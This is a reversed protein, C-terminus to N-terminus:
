HHIEETETVSDSIDSELESYSMVRSATDVYSHDELQRIANLLKTGYFISSIQTDFAIRSRDTRTDHTSRRTMHNYLSYLDMPYLEQALVPEIFKKPFVPELVQRAAEFPVEVDTWSQWVDTVRHSNDVLRRVKAALSKTTWGDVLENATLSGIQDGIMAGNMCILRMVGTRIKLPMSKDYSNYAYLKLHSLDGNGIDLPKELPLDMEVQITAGNKLSVINMTGEKDPYLREYTDSLINILEEHPIVVSKASYVGFLRDHDTSLVVKKDRFEKFESFGTKDLIELQPFAQILPMIEIPARWSDDVEVINM